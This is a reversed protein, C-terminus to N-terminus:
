PFKRDFEEQSLVVIRGRMTYHGLGCLQACAFELDDATATATVVVKGTMGPVAYIQVRFNPMFFDHIVDKSQVDIEVPRNVPLYLTPTGADYRDDSGDPDTLDKGLPDITDIYRNIAVIAQDQPLSAPGPVGAFNKQSGAPWLPDTPKPYILYRGFKGDPGPYIVNWKYQQGIVLVKARRPNTQDTSDRFQHWAIESGGMIGLLILTAIVTWIIELRTSGHTYVVKTQQPRARFRILIALLSLQVILLIAVTIWFIWNFLRDIQRGHLSYNAPLWWDSGIAVPLKALGLPAIASLMQNLIGCM